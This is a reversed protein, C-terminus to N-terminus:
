WKSEFQHFNMILLHKNKALIINTRLSRHPEPTKPPKTKTQTKQKTKKQRHMGMKLGRLMHEDPEDPFLLGSLLM